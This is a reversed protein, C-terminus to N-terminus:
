FRKFTAVYKKHKQTLLETKTKLSSLRSQSTQFGQRPLGVLDASFSDNVHELAALRPEKLLCKHAIAKREAELVSSDYHFTELLRHARIPLNYM